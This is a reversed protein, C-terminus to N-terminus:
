GRLVPANCKAFEKVAVDAGALDLGLVGALDGIVLNLNDILPNVTVNAIASVSIGVVGTAGLLANVLTTASAIVANKLPNGLLPISNLPIGGVRIDTITISTAANVTAHPLTNAGSNTTKVTDYTDTTPIDWELTTGTSASKSLSSTLTQTATIDATLLGPVGQVNTGLGINDGTIALTLAESMTALDTAVDIPIVDPDCTVEGLTGRAQAINTVLALPGGISITGGLPPPVTVTTGFTGSTSSTVQATKAVAGEGGCAQHPAEIISLSTTTYVLNPVNINLAPVGVFNIGNAVTAAGAVLDLLNFEADLAGEGATSLDMLQGIAVTQSAVVSVSALHTLLDANAINAAGGRDRLVEASALFIDAVTINNAALLEDVSGVNISSAQILDLLSINADALGQYGVATLDTDGLIPNLMAVLTDPEQSLGVLFSGVSFCTNAESSAVATRQAGGSGPAFAFDVSTSTTVRVANPVDPYPIPSTFVGTEPDVLGMRVKVVLPSGSVTAIADAQQQQTSIAPNGDMNLNNRVSDELGGRWESTAKIVAQTRGDLQRVMDLAIVDAVAQMDRRAVRQRGLDVAFAAIVILLTVTIAVLPLIAGRDDRRPM